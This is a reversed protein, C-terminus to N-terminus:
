KKRKAPRLTVNSQATNSTGEPDHAVVTARAALVHSHALLKRAAASLHLTISKVQGGAVSFSGTALTLISAKAKAQEARSSVRAVVAKLTRLTLTGTCSTVGTPCSVKVVVAGSSSVTLSAGAVTAAPTGTEKSPLVGGQGGGGGSGGGGSSSGGGGTGGGNGGGGGGVVVEKAKVTLTAATTTATEPVSNTFKARYEHGSEALATDSVTLTDSTAGPVATWAGGGNTSIEWQVTPTPFGGATADFTASQGETVTQNEPSKKISLKEPEPEVTLTAPNTIAEGASNTFKARYEDNNQTHAVDAVTFVGTITNGSTKTEGGAIAKFEKGEDTSLEWVVTPRPVGEAEAEFTATEGAKKTVSSPQKVIKPPENVTIETSTKLEPTELDDTHITATVKLKGAKAFKHVVEATQTQEGSPTQVTEEADGDGFQWTVSLVNAGLVKTGLTVKTATSPETVTKGDLTAEIGGVLSAAPCGTGGEGFKIVESTAMSLVLVSNEPGAAVQPYDVDGFGVECSGKKGGEGPVGGTWGIESVKAKQGVEETYGFVAAGYSGQTGLKGEATMENIEKLAVLRGENAGPGPFIALAGGEATEEDLEVLENKFPGAVFGEPEAFRFVSVPESSFGPQIEFIEEGEDSEYYVAGNNSVVPSNGAQGTHSDVYTSTLKGEANVRDVATHMGSEAEDVRGLLVVEKTAPDYAIGSPELLAQGPTESGAKLTEGSALLGEPNAIASPLVSESEGKKNVIVEPTAKFAYVAGAVEKGANVADSRNRYYTVLVYIRNEGPAVAVGELHAVEELGAPDAKIVKGKEEIEGPQLVAKGMYAGLHSYEQVRFEESEEKGEEDGVFINGNEADVGFARTTEDELNFAHAEKNAKETGKGDFRLLQGYGSAWAPASTAAAMLLLGALLAPLYWRASRFNSM